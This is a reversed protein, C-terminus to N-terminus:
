ALTVPNDESILRMRVQGKLGFDELTGPGSSSKHAEKNRCCGQAHTLQDLLQTMHRQRGVNAFSQGVRFAVLRDIRADAARCGSGSGSQVEGRTQQLLQTLLPYPNTKHGQM